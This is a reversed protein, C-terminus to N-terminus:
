RRIEPTNRVALALVALIPVLLSLFGGVSYGLAGCGAGIAFGVVPPWLRRFRARVAVTATEPAGFILDSGDIALQTVNGTMVTTPSLSAFVTRSAANQVGMAVVGSLAAFIACPTDGDTIPSAVQGLTLFAALLVAELVLFRPAIAVGRRELSRGYLRVVGVAVIFTPIALIKAILGHLPQTVASGLVVLNGTVHATFFSFLAVFGLTDVYGAAFALTVPVLSPAAAASTVNTTVAHTVASGSVATETRASNANM